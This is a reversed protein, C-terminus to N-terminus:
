SKVVIGWLIAGLVPCLPAPIGGRLAKQPPRQAALRVNRLAHLLERPGCCFGVGFEDRARQHHEGQM